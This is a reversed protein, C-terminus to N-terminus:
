TIINSNIYKSAKKCVNTPLPALRSLLPLPLCNVSNNPWGIVVSEAFFSFFDLELTNM